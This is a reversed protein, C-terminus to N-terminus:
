VLRLATKYGDSRVERQVHGAYAFQPLNLLRKVADTVELSLEWQFPLDRRPSALPVLRILVRKADKM